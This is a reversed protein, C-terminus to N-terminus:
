GKTKKLLSLRDVFIYLFYVNIATGIVYLLIKVNEHVCMNTRQPHRAMFDVKLYLIVLLFRGM